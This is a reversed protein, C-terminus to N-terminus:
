VSVNAFPFVVNRVQGQKQGAEVYASHTVNSIAVEQEEHWRVCTSRGKSLQCVIGYAWYITQLVCCRMWSLSANSSLTCNVRGIIKLLCINDSM